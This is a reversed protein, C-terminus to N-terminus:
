QFETDGIRGVDGHDVHAHGLEVAILHHARQTAVWLRRLHRQDNEGRQYLIAVPQSSKEAARIDVEFLREIGLLEHACNLLDNRERWRLSGLLEAPQTFSLILYSCAM